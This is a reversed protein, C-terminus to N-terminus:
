NEIEQTWSKGDKEFEIRDRHIRVITTGLIVDGEHVIQTGIVASPRNQSHLISRVILKEAEPESVQPVLPQAQVPVLPGTQMPDRLTAPYPAPIKWDIQGCSDGVATAPAKQKDRAVSYSPPSVVQTLVFVLVIALAPVLVVMAKQRTQSIGAKPAFLKEKLQLLNKQMGGRRRDFVSAPAPKSAKKTAATNPRKQVAIKPVPGGTALVTGGHPELEASPPKDSFRADPTPKPVAPRTEVSSPSTPASGEHPEAQQAPAPAYKPPELIPMRRLVAIPDDASLPVDKFISAVDKQLGIRRKPM